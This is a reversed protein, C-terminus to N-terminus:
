QNEYHNLVRPMHQEWRLNNESPYKYGGVVTKSDPRGGFMTVLEEKAITETRYTGDDRLYSNRVTINYPISEGNIAAIAHVLEHIMIQGLTQREKKSKSSGGNEVFRDLEGGIEVTQDSGKGNYDNPNDEIGTSTSTTRGGVMGPSGDKTVEIARNITLTKENGVLMRILETGQKKDGNGRNAIEVKKTKPNYRLKDNTMNQLGAMIAKIEDKNLDRKAITNRGLVIGGTPAMGDPDIFRLPNDFAYNYPSWRRMKDALPDPVMWRGIQIDNMRAGFDLWELGSGDSFEQRQEEKGIFKKKNDPQGFNLAKSSIGAMTLGFPYYHTEELLPGRIHTVQLNDFYVEINPTENSVYIYLYGNKTLTLNSQTHVTFTNSSGVQEFGSSNSVYNFQEDFLIWNVFAKPRGTNYGSQSNLFNTVNPSLIGSGQIESTTAHSGGLNGVSGAIAAVLDNLPNVPTGPSWGANWWSSVRLNFKDGAMVKLIMNAGIKVDNGTLRQIADNPNTYPDNPYGSVYSKNIRGGDLGGYFTKEYELNAGELSAVPYADTKQEETLVMRVNGLHDKIFYDYQLSSDSQKFRVRGEEQPLFQLTDNVFNGFLYLTTTTKSGEATIKKLKNGGADYVYKIYGKGVVVISDPLNLHNYHITSIDKNNDVTLNGNPDYSYDTASTTKNNSLSTM